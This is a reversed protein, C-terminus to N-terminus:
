TNGKSFRLFNIDRSWINKKPPIYRISGTLEPRSNYSESLRLFTYFSPPFTISIWSSIKHTKKKNM